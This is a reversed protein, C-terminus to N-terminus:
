KKRGARPDPVGFRVAVSSYVNVKQGKQMGPEWLPMANVVRLAETDMLPHAHRIVRADAVHGDVSVAFKVYVIGVTNNDKCIKPYVTHTELYKALSDDGGPFRPMKEAIALIQVKSTDTQATTLLPLFLIILLITKM